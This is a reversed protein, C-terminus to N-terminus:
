ISLRFLNVIRDLTRRFNQSVGKKRHSSFPTSIIRTKLNLRIIQALRKIGDEIDGLKVTSFSLQFDHSIVDGFYFLFGPLFAVQNKLCSFFLSRSDLKKPGKVWVFFGGKPTSWSFESPFYKELSALLLDRKQCLVQKTKRLHNDLYGRRWFEYVVMQSLIDGYITTAKLQNILSPIIKKPAVIWGVRLGPMITKSVSGIIIVGEPYFSRISPLFSEKEYSLDKFIQDEIIFFKFKKALYAIKERRKRNLLAGTPNHFDPVLYALNPINSHKGSLYKEFADVRLGDNDVAISKISSRNSMLLPEIGIYTPKEVVIEERYPLLVRILLDLATQSGSTIIVEEPHVPTNKDSLKESILERLPYYGYPSSYQFTAGSAKKLVESYLKKIEDFPFLSPDPKAGCFSIIRDNAALNLFREIKELKSAKKM